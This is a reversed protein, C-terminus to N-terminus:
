MTDDMECDLYLSVRYPSFQTRGDDTDKYDLRVNGNGPKIDGLEYYRGKPTVNVGTMLLKTEYGEPFVEDRNIEIRQTGRFYILDDKDSTILLGRIVVVAKDLDFTQSVTSNAATIQIDFRKKIPKIM